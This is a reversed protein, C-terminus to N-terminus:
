VYNIGKLFGSTRSRSVRIKKLDAREILTEYFNILKVDSDLLPKGSLTSVTVMYITNSVFGHPPSNKHPRYIDM